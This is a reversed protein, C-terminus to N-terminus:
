HRQEHHIAKRLQAIRALQQETAYGSKMEWELRRLRAERWLRLDRRKTQKEPTANM